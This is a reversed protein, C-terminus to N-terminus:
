PQLASLAPLCREALRHAVRAGVLTTGAVAQVDLLGGLLLDSQLQPVASAEQTVLLLLVVREESVATM